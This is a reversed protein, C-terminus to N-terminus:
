SNHTKMNKILAKQLQESTVTAAGVEKIVLGAAQNSIIAADIPPLNSALGMTMVAIVTDGAGTVDYVEEAVTEIHSIKDDEILLMGKEGCTVLVTKCNLDKLLKLGAEKIQDFSKLKVGLATSLEHHNPTIVSVGNYLKVHEVKPDISIIKNKELALPLITSLLEPTVIGKGYDEILIADVSDISNEIIKWYRKFDDNELFELDEEDCRVVQQNRAIIRTKKTTIRGKVTLICETSIGKNAMTELLISGNVDDGIVGCTLVQGGITNINNAVNSAGGLRHTKKNVKVVPVPAEQSIREVDGWLYEDLMVDGIVLTKTKKFNAIADLFYPLNEETLRKDIM